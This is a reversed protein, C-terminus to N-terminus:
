ETDTEGNKGGQPIVWFVSNASCWDEYKEPTWVTILALSGPEDIERVIGRVLGWEDVVVRGGIVTDGLKFKIPERLPPFKFGTSPMAGFARVALPAVYQAEDQSLGQEDVLWTCLEQYRQPGVVNGLGELWALAECLGPVKECIDSIYDPERPEAKYSQNIETVWNAIEADTTGRAWERFEPNEWGREAIIEVTATESLAALKAIANTNLSDRVAQTQDTM